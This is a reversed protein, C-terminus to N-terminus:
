YKLAALAAFPGHARVPAPSAPVPPRKRRSPALMAPAPPGFADPSLGGGPIIHFGLRRLVIPLLDAKISFRSALSSSIMVPSRRSTHGLEGAVREAIDLRLLLPGAEIWGMAAAFGAPWDAQHPMSVLGPQPLGPVAVGHQLAWLRARMAGARPKLLAPLFLAFRGSRVGLAKLQARLDPSLLAEQAEPVLGLAESLRHLPGRLSGVSAAAESASFLPALDARIQEDVYRQLRQRLRERQNGDLFESDLMQVLPRLASGGRVLRAVPVDEWTIHQGDTWALVDDPAAELVAVRRPIEERLARRAARQVLKKEDGVASPDPAFRFGEVRGVPHGEVVVDGTRTVASLLEEGDGAELRRM